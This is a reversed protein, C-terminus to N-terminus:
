KQESRLPSIFMMLDLNWFVESISPHPRTVNILVFKAFWRVYGSPFRGDLVKDLKKRKDDGLECSPKLFQSNRSALSKGSDEKATM